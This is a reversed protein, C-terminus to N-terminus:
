RQMNPRFRGYDNAEFWHGQPCLIAPNMEALKLPQFINGTIFYGQKLKLSINEVSYGDM